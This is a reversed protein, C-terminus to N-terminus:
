GTGYVLVGAIINMKVDCGFEVKNERSSTYNVKEVIVPVQVPRTPTVYFLMLGSQGDQLSLSAPTRDADYDMKVSGAIDRKGAIRATGAGGHGSHTVDFLLSSIDLNQSTINLRLAGGGSPQFVVPCLDGRQFNDAM